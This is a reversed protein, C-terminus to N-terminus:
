APLYESAWDIGLEALKIPTPVGDNTWGMLAYYNDLASEFEVEDLAVDATPGTGTLPQFFKKPLKDDKRSFGERANFVRMLNIRREGLKMLEFLSVKWGTVAQVMDVTEKPGYLCWTPGYVFQCVSLSDMMSYFMQSYAAFKVKEPGLSRFAPPDKLDLENLRDLNFGTIGEEYYPDHESSQHDAGFPNVAYILALSRKAQPMHAPAEENKVTILCNEAEPGWFKAARASGEALITGLPGTKTVIQTLTELMADANGFRLEMGGTQEKTIIGKEYCEMAFAITAGCTITDVGYMDCVQNAHAVAALNRIGCYSGFTALTEYEPGGYFPEAKYNGEDVEVVRKCRVVCAYCTDRKKLITESMREGSIDEAFEFQGESYNRTPLTGLMNNFMVVSATGLKELGDVDANETSLKPGAKHLESLAKQDAVQPKNKGRVVVAKLNKSAMVLGMGTRGNLRNSMNVIGSFRVGKEAAPGIQAIEIKPDNLDQKIIAEVEGTVKGTLHSADHLRADGDIVTLYVPYPSRGTFVIGDYGAFKFEAPFFGGAQSDGIAGSMPSKANVTIRSQGSISAGTVVSDMFTLVNEPSLADVGAPMMKLIYYVGMASGGMYKRYFTEPPEEVVMEGNTLDVHLIKGNYGYPM